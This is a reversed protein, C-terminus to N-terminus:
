SRRVKDLAALVHREQITIGRKPLADMLQKADYGGFAVAIRFLDAASKSAWGDFFDKPLIM